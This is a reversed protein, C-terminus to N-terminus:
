SETPTVADTQEIARREDLIELLVSGNMMTAMFRDWQAESSNGPDQLRCFGYYNFFAQITRLDMQGALALNIMRLVDNIFRDEEDDEQKKTTLEKGHLRVNSDLAPLGLMYGWAHLIAHVGCSNTSVQHPVRLRQTDIVQPPAQRNEVQKGDKDMGLWGIRQVTKRVIDHIRADREAEPYSDMVIMRIRDGAPDKEILQAVAFVIHGDQGKDENPNDGVAVPPPSTSETPDEGPAFGASNPPSVYYGDMVMPILLNNPGYVAAMVEARKGQNGRMDGRVIQYQLADDFAFPRRMQRVVADWVSAIGMHVDENSLDRWSKIRHCDITPAKRRRRENRDVGIDWIFKWQNRRDEELIRASPTLLQQLMPDVAVPPGPEEPPGSEEDPASEEPPGSEEEPPGSEEDPPGSEGDPRRKEEEADEAERAKRAAEEVAKAEMEKRGAEEAAKAEAEQRMLEEMEQVRVKDAEVSAPLYRLAAENKWFFLVADEVQIVAFDPLPGIAVDPGGEEEEGGVGPRIVWFGNVRVARIQAWWFYFGKEEGQGDIRFFEAARRPKLANLGGRRTSARLMCIQDDWSIQGREAVWMDSVIPRVCNWGKGKAGGKGKGGAELWKETGSGAVEDGPCRICRVFAAGGGKDFNRELPMGAAISITLSSHLTSEQYLPSSKFSWEVASLGAENRERDLNEIAWPSPIPTAETTPLVRKLDQLKVNKRTPSKKPTAKRSSPKQSSLVSADTSQNTGHSKKARKPAPEEDPIIEPSEHRQRKSRRTPQTTPPHPPPHPNSPAATTPPPGEKEDPIKQEDVECIRKGQDKSEERGTFREPGDMCRHGPWISSSFAYRPTIHSSIAHPYIYRHDITAGQEQVCSRRSGLTNKGKRRRGKREKVGALNHLSHILCVREMASLIWRQDWVKCGTEGVGEGVWKIRRHGGCLRSGNGYEYLGMHGLAYLNHDAPGSLPQECSIDSRMSTIIQAALHCSSTDPDADTDENRTAAPPLQPHTHFQSSAPYPDSPSSSYFFPQTTQQQRPPPLPPCHPHVHKYQSHTPPSPYATGVSAMPHTPHFAFNPSSSSAPSTPSTSTHQPFATPPVALTMETSRHHDNPSNTYGGHSTTTSYDQMRRKSGEGKGDNDHHDSIRKRKQSSSSPPIVGREHAEGVEHGNNSDDQGESMGDGLGTGRRLKKNEERLRTVEERLVENEAVVKRAAA